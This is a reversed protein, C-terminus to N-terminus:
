ERALNFTTSHIQELSMNIFHLKMSFKLSSGSSDSFLKGTESVNLHRLTMDNGLRFCYHM